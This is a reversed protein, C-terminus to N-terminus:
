VTIAIYCRPRPLVSQLIQLLPMKIVEVIELSLEDITYTKLRSNQLETKIKEGIQLNLYYNNNNNNYKSQDSKGLWLM